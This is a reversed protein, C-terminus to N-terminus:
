RISCQESNKHWNMPAHNFTFWKKARVFPSASMLYCLIRTPTKTISQHRPLKPPVWSLTCCHEDREHYMRISWTTWLHAMTKRRRFFTLEKTCSIRNERLVIPCWTILHCFSAHQQRLMCSVLLQLWWPCSGHDILVICAYSWLMEPPIREPELRFESFQRGTTFVDM